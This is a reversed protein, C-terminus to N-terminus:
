RIIYSANVTMKFASHKCDIATDNDGNTIFKFQYAPQDVLAKAGTDFVGGVSLAVRRILKDDFAIAIKGSTQTPPIACKGEGTESGACYISTSGNSQVYPTSVLKDWNWLLFGDKKEFFKDLNLNQSGALLINNFTLFIEDDYYMAQGTGDAGNAFDMGLQCLIANKPLDLTAPEESRASIRGDVPGINGNVPALDTGFTCAAVPEPFTIVQQYKKVDAGACALALAAETIIPGGAAAATESGASGAVIEEGAGGANPGNDIQAAAASLVDELDIKQEPGAGTEDGSAKGNGDAGRHIKPTNGSFSADGSCGSLGSLVIAIVTADLRKTMSLKM